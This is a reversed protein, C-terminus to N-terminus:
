NLVRSYETGANDLMQSALVLWSTWLNMLECSSMFSRKKFLFLVECNWFWFTHLCPRSELMVYIWILSSYDSFCVCLSESLHFVSLYPHIVLMWMRRAEACATMSEEYDGLSAERVTAIPQM